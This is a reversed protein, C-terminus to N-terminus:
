ETDRSQFFDIVLHYVSSLNRHNSLEQNEFRLLMVKLKTYLYSQCFGLGTRFGLTV